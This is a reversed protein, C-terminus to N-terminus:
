KEVAEAVLDYDWSEVVRAKVIEGPTAQGLLRTVGDVEVAQGTFRAIWQIVNDEPKDSSEEEEIVPAWQGDVIVEVERGMYGALREATIPRQTEFIAGLREDAVEPPVQEDMREAATGEEPSFAFGSAWFFRAREIFDLLEKFEKDGEGPFGVLFTTRLVLDPVKECLKALLAEIGARGQRRGMKALITDNAHQLPLDLYRLLRPEVALLGILRDTLREPHAYLIRLWPIKTESLLREVLDALELRPELDHGWATTDQAVLYLEKVGSSELSRAERVLPEMPESRLRGRIRPIACFRCAADCGEAIKLFAYHPPTTLIRPFPDACIKPAPGSEDSLDPATPGREEWLEEMAGALEDVHELGMFLDVEPIEKELEGRYREVLCGVVALVAYGGRGKERVAEMVAEVSEERAAEIFGCTNIVLAFADEPAPVAQFGAAALAGLAREADVRNKDCGLTLYAVRKM